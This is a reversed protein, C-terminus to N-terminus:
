PAVRALAPHTYDLPAPKANCAAWETGTFRVTEEADLMQVHLFSVTGHGPPAKRVRGTAIVVCPRGDWILVPPAPRGHDALALYDYHNIPSVYKSIAVRHITTM